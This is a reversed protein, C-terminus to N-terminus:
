KLVPRGRDDLATHDMRCSRNCWNTCSEEWYLVCLKHILAAVAAACAHSGNDVMWRSPCPVARCESGVGSM